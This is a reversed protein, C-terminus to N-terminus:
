AMMAAMAAASLASGGLGFLGSNSSNANASNLNAANQYISSVNTPNVTTQSPSSFQPQSVQSGSQLASFENLPMTYNQTYNSLAQQYATEDMGFQSQEQQTANLTNQEQLNNLSNNEDMTANNYAESGPTIGQAALSAQLQEKSRDVYPQELSNQTNMIGTQFNADPTPASGANATNYPTSLTNNVQGLYSNATSAENATTNLNSDLANQVTPNLTINSNTQPVPQGNIDQTGYTYNISGLPTTQNVNNLGAQTEATTVNSGTQAAATQAPDPSSPASQM